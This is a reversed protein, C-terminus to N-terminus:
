ATALGKSNCAPGAYSYKRWLPDDMVRHTRREGDAFDPGRGSFQYAACIRPSRTQEGMFEAPTIDLVSM